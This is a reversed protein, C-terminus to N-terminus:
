SGSLDFLGRCSPKLEKFKLNSSTLQHRYHDLLKKSMLENKVSNIAHIM